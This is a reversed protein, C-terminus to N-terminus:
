RAQRRQPASSSRAQNYLLAPRNQSQAKDGRNTIAQCLRFSTLFVLQLTIGTSSKQHKVSHEKEFSWRRRGWSGKIKGWHFFDDNDWSTQRSFYLLQRNKLRAQPGLRVCVTASGRIEVDLFVSCIEWRQICFALRGWHSAPLDVSLSVMQNVPSTPVPADHCISAYYVPDAHSTDGHAFHVFLRCQSCRCQTSACLRSCVSLWCPRCCQAPGVCEGGRQGDAGFISSSCRSTCCQAAPSLSMSNNRM